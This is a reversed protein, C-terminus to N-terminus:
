DPSRVQLGDPNDRQSFNEAQRLMHDRVARQLAQSAVVVVNDLTDLDPRRPVAGRNHVILHEQDVSADLDRVTLVWQTTSLAEYVQLRLMYMIAKGPM